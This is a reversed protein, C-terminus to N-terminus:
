RFPYNLKDIHSPKSSASELGYLIVLIAFCNVLSLIVNLACDTGVKGLIGNLSRFYKMKAEHVRTLLSLNQM